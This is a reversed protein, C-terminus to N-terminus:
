EVRSTTCTISSIKLAGPEMRCTGIDVHTAHALFVM